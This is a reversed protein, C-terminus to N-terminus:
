EIMAVSSICHTIKRTCFLVNDEYLRGSGIITYNIANGWYRNTAGDKYEAIGFLDNKICGYVGKKYLNLRPIEFLLSWNKISGTFAKNRLFDLTVMGALHLRKKGEM